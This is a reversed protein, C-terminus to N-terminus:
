QHRGTFERWGPLFLNFAPLLLNDRQLNNRQLQTRWRETACRAPGESNGRKKKRVLGSVRRKEGVGVFDHKLSMNNVLQYDIFIFFIKTM